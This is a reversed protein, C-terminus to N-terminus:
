EGRARAILKDVVPVVIFEIIPVTLIMTVFTRLPVSWDTESTLYTLM